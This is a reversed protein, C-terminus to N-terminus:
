LWDWIGPGHPMQKEWSDEEWDDAPIWWPVVGCWPSLTHPEALRWGKFRTSQQRQYRRLISSIHISIHYICLLMHYCLHIIVHYVLVMYSGVYLINFRHVCYIIYLWWLSLIHIIIALIYSSIDATYGHQKPEQHCGDGPLEYSVGGTASPPRSGTVFFVKWHSSALWDCQVRKTYRWTLLWIFINRICWWVGDINKVPHITRSECRSSRQLTGENTTRDAPELWTASPLPPWLCCSEVM